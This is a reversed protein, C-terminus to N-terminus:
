GGGSMGELIVGLNLNNGNKMLNSKKIKLVVFYYKDNLKRGGSM